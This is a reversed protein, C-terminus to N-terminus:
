CLLRQLHRLDKDWFKFPNDYYLEKSLEEHQEDIQEKISLKPLSITLAIECQASM